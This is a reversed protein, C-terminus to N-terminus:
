GFEEPLDLFIVSLDPAEWLCTKQPKLGSCMITPCTYHGYSIRPMFWLAKLIEAEM